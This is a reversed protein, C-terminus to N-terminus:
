ADRIVGAIKFADDEPAYGLIARADSIDLRKWRNDSVGHFVGFRLTDPADISAIMLRTLDEYTLAIDLYPHDPRILESDREIV